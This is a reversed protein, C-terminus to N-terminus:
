PLSSFTVLFKWVDRERDCQINLHPVNNRTSVFGNWLYEAKWYLFANNNCFSSLTNAYTLLMRRENQIKSRQCKFIVNMYFSYFFSFLRQKVYKNVQVKSLSKNCCYCLLMLALHRHWSTMVGFFRWSSWSAHVSLQPNLRLVRSKMQMKCLRNIRFFVVTNPQTLYKIKAAISVNIRRRPFYGSRLFLIWNLNVVRKWLSFAVAIKFPAGFLQVM